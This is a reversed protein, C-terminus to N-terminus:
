GNELERLAKEFYHQFGELEEYTTLHSLSIRLTSRARKKDKTLAYVARSPAYPSSCASKTSLFFGYKALMDKMKEAKVHSLTINLIYPVSKSTSNICVGTYEGFRQRLIDNMKQVHKYHKERNEELLALATGLSTILSLSPTGSRYPSISLGGHHLPEIIVDEMLVLCGIGNLGYIKHGSFTYSDVDELNVPIKGVAQTGDIHIFANSHQRICRCIGPIDQAIGLESDVAGLVVLLTEPQLLSVLHELDVQGHCDLDVYDIHYGQKELIGIPGLVSSHELFSTIIHKRRGGHEGAIGKIALNNAETGSSTFVLESKQIGLCAALQKKVKELQEQAPKALLNNSNPNMKFQQECRIFEELVEPCAPTNAAYDLYIM